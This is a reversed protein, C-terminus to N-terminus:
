LFCTEIVSCEAEVVLGGQLGGDGLEFVICLSSLKNIDKLLTENEGLYLTM